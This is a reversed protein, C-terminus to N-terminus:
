IPRQAASSLIYVRSFVRRRMGEVAARLWDEFDLGV